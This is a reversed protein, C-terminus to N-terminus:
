KEVAIDQIGKLEITRETQYLPLLGAKLMIKQGIEGTIFSAFGIGVDSKGSTSIFYLDQTFPYHRDQLNYQFPALYGVQLSDKPRSIQLLHFRALVEKTYAEDSDSIETYDIVGIANPNDLLYKLVDQKNSYAYFHEPLNEVQLTKMLVNSIGSKPDEVVFTVDQDPNKMKHLLDEYLITTDQNDNSTIFAIASTALPVQRPNIQRSKWYKLEDEHLPRNTIISQVSDKLLMTLVDQESAFQPQIDAYKYTREFINEQQLVIDKLSIDVGIKLKGITPGSIDETKKVCALFFPLILCIYWKLKM